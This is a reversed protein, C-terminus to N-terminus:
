AEIELELKKLESKLKMAESMTLEETWMDYTDGYHATDFGFVWWGDPVDHKTKFFEIRDSFTLGGHVGVNWMRQDDYDIGHLPSNPSVAVYGNYRGRNSILSLQETCDVLFVKMENSM